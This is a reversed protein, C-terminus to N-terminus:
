ITIQFRLGAVRDCASLSYVVTSVLYEGANMRGAMRVEHVFQAAGVGRRRIRLLRLVMTLNKREEDTM